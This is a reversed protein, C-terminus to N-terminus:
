NSIYDAYIKEWDKFKKFPEKLAGPNTLVYLHQSPPADVARARHM